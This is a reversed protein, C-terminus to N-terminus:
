NLNFQIGGPVPGALISSDEIPHAWCKSNLSDRRACIDLKLDGGGHGLEGRFPVM